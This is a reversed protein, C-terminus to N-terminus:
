AKKQFITINKSPFEVRWHMAKALWKMTRRQFFCVHVPERQYWWKLFDQDENWMETMVGLYGNQDVLLQDMLEFEKAPFYFHEVVESCTIFDYTGRLLERDAYFMPDYNHVTFGQKEMIIKITPGPGCGFDLGRSGVSLKKSLPITLKELFKVYRIDNPDNEHLVYREKEEKRGLRCDPDLFILFCDRCQYYIRPGYRKSSGEKFYKANQTKCLPCSM